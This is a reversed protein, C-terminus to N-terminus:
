NQLHNILLCDINKNATLAIDLPGLLNKMVVMLVSISWSDWWQNWNTIHSIRIFVPYILCPFQVWGAIVHEFIVISVCSCPTFYTWLKVIFVGFCRWKRREPTMITLKSCIKCRTRTNKNNVKLLYIDAPDKVTLCFTKLTCHM